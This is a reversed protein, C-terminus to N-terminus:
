SGAATEDDPRTSCRSRITEEYDDLAQPTIRWQQGLKLAILKRERILRRITDVHVGYM